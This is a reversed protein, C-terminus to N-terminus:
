RARQGRDVRPLTVYPEQRGLQVATAQLVTLIADLQQQQEPSLAAVLDRNLQAVAPQVQAYIQRGQETLSITIRRRDGALPTRQVWGKAELSTLAKSTRARDLQTATALASSLLGESAALAALVSWERRTLGFQAECVRGNLVNAQILLRNLRFLPMQQITQM